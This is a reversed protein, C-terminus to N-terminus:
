RGRASGAKRVKWVTSAHGQLNIVALPEGITEYDGFIPM